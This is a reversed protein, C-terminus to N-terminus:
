SLNSVFGSLYAMLRDFDVDRKMAVDVCTAMHTDEGFRRKIRDLLRAVDQSNTRLYWEGLAFVACVALSQDGGLVLEVLRFLLTFSPEAYDGIGIVALKTTERDGRDMLSEFVSGKDQVCEISGGIASELQRRQRARSDEIARSATRMEQRVASRLADSEGYEDM